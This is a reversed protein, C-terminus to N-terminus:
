TTCTTPRLSLGLRQIRCTDVALLTCITGGISPRYSPRLKEGSLVSVAVALWQILAALDTFRDGSLGEIRFRAAISAVVM